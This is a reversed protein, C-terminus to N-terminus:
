APLIKGPDVETARRSPVYTALLGVVMVFSGVLAYTVSDAPRTEFLLRSFVEAAALAAAYGILVGATVLFIGHRVLMRVISEPRGGLALRIGIEHGRRAVTFSVLGYIGLGALMVAVAAAVALFSPLFRDLAIVDTYQREVARLKSIAAGPDVEAIRRRLNAALDAPPDESRILMTMDRLPAQRHSVYASAVQPLVPHVDSVDGVIGIVRSVPGNPGEWRLQQGVAEGDPWLRRALTEGIVVGPESSDARGGDFVEGAIVPVEAARFYDDTVVRWDASVYEDIAWDMRGLETFSRPSMDFYRMNTAGVSRVGPARRLASLVEDLRASLTGRSRTPSLQVEVVFLGQTAFGPDVRQLRYFSKALLGAVVLLTTAIAVQGVVLVDRYRRAPNASGSSESLARQVKWRAAQIASGMGIGLGELVSAVCAFVLARGDLTVQNMRPVLEPQRAVAPVLAYALTVGILAGIAGLVLGEIVLLRMTGWRGAGIAARVGFERQRVSTRALLLSSINAGILLLLLAMASLLTAGVLRIQPGVVHDTLPMLSVGWGRNSAPYAEALDSAVRVAEELAQDLEVDPRLRGFVQVRRDERPASPDLAGPLWFDVDVLDELARPMVGIVVFLGDDLRLARGVIDPDGSFRSAWARHSLVASTSPTGLQGERVGFVRGRAPEVQLMRFLDGTVFAASVRELDDEGVLSVRVPRLAALDMVGSARERYDLFDPQSFFFDMGQPSVQSLRVLRDPESFPVPELVVADYVSFITTSAGVGLGLTLTVAAAFRPSRRLARASYVTDRALARLAAGWGVRPILPAGGRGPLRDIRVTAYRVSLRVASWWYWRAAYRRSRMEAAECYEEWLDGLIGELAEPDTIALRLLTEALRPPGRGGGARRTM